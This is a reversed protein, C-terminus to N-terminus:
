SLSPRLFWPQWVPLRIPLLSRPPSCVQPGSCSHIVAAEFHADRRFDSSPIDHLASGNRVPPLGIDHPFFRARAGCSGGPYPALCAPFSTCLYRRSPGRRLLPECCGASVEPGLSLRLVPSPRPRACSGTPAIVTPYRRDLDHTCSGQRPLAGVPCLPERGHRHSGAVVVPCLVQAQHVVSSAWHALPCVALFRPTHSRASSGGGQQSPRKPVAMTALRVPSIGGDPIVLPAKPFMAITSNHVWEAISLAPNSVRWRRHTRGLEIGVTDLAFRYTNRLVATKLYCRDRSLEV